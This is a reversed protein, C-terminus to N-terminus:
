SAPNTTSCDADADAAPGLPVRVAIATRGPQSSIDFAGGVSRIRDAMTQLGLGKGAQGAPDFGCGDDIVTMEIQGDHEALRLKITEANSHRMANNVAEQAVRFLAIEKEPAFRSDELEPPYEAIFEVAPDCTRRLESLAPILGLAELAPPYLGYCLRRVNQILEACQQAQGTLGASAFAFKMAVLQQGISDHLERAVRKQEEERIFLLKLRAADLAQEARRRATIDTAVGVMGTVNGKEDRLPSIRMNLVRGALECIALSDQGALAAQISHLIAEPDHCVDTLRRGVLQEGTRGLSDLARGDAFQIVGDADTLLLVVPVNSVVMQLRQRSLRVADWAQNIETLDRFIGQVILDPGAAVRSAAIHIPVVKGSRTLVTGQIISVGAGKASEAISKAHLEAEEPPHLSSFHRGIIEQRPWGLLKEAAKNCNIIAGTEPDAWFIPDVANEFTLRFREESKELALEALRRESIDRAIVLASVVEGDPKRVPSISTRYWKTQGRIVTRTEFVGGKGSGIVMRVSKVQGDAIDKPFADWATKGVLDKPEKGLRAATTGNVFLYRGDADMTFIAEDASEVLLRYKEKNERLADEAQKHWTVDLAIGGLIPAEGEAEEIPFRVALWRRPGGAMPFTFSTEVQKGEALVRNDEERLSRALSDPSLDFATKGVLDERRCGSLEAFQRNVYIYRGDRDKMFAVGPLNEMFAAFRQRNRQLADDAQEHEALERRLNKRMDNLAAVVHSLEDGDGKDATSRPLKLPEDLRDIRLNRAYDSMTVLHRTVLRNFIFLIFASVIFTKIGNGILIPLARSLLRSYVGELSAVVRLSGLPVVERSNDYSIDFTRELAMSTVPAGSAITEHSTRISAYRMDPLRVIGDLQIQIQEMELQWLTGAMAPLYSDHIQQFRKDIQEIDGRYDMFLQTATVVLAIMSSLLVVYLLMRRAIRPRYKKTSM